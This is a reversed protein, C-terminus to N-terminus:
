AGGKLSLNLRQHYLIADIHIEGSVHVHVLSRIRQNVAVGRLLAIDVRIWFSGNVNDLGSTNLLGRVKRIIAAPTKKSSAKSIGCGAQDALRVFLHPYPFM